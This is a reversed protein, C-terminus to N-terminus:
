GKRRRKTPDREIISRFTSPDMDLRRAAERQSMDEQADEYYARVADDRADLAGDLKERLDEAARMKARASELKQEHEAVVPGYVSERGPQPVAITTTM